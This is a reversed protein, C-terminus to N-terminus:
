NKTIEEIAIERFLSAKKSKEVLDAYLDPLETFLSVANDHDFLIVTGDNQQINEWGVLVTDVFVNMLIEDATEEKLMDMEIQRQYPKTSEAFGKTYKKNSKSMRRIFFAMESGDKNKGYPIRVGKKELEKSTGFQEFISM